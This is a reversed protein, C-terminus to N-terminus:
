WTREYEEEGVGYAQRIDELAELLDQIHFWGVFGAYVCSGEPCAVFVHDIGFLDEYLRITSGNALNMVISAKPFNSWNGDTIGPTVRLRRVIEDDVITEGISTDVWFDRIAEAVEPHNRLGAHSVGPLCVYQAHAFRMCAIPVTGDSGQGVDGAIILTPIEKAIAEALHVRSTGLDAAIGIGLKFPDIMRGLDSGGVPSGVLVLSHVRSWWEPHRHLVELWILGGMSHGVIRFPTHPYPDLHAKAIAEVDNILPDIKLWTQIYGLNPAVIPTNDTVLRKALKLMTRNDDAWGHQVFLFFGPEVFESM